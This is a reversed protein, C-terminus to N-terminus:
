NLGNKEDETPGYEQDILFDIYDRLESEMAHIIQVAVSSYERMDNIDKNATMHELMSIVFIDALDMLADCDKDDMLCDFSGSFKFANEKTISRFKKSNM